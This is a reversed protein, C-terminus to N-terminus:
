IYKNVNSFNKKKKNFFGPTFINNPLSKYNIPLYLKKYNITSYYSFRSYGAIMMLPLVRM